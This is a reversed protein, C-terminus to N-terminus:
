EYVTIEIQKPFVEEFIPEDYEYPSEDQSETAGQSYTSRWFKGDVITKVILESRYSWRSKGIIKNSIIEFFTNDYEGYALDAAVEKDIKLKAKEM